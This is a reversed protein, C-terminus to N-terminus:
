RVLFYAAEKEDVDEKNVYRYESDREFGSRELLVQSKKNDVHTIATTAKALMKDFAFDIVANAAEHMFGQGQYESMLEYGIEMTEKEYDYHWLGISGILKDSGKPCMVWTLSQHISTFGEIKRIHEYVDESTPHKPRDLYTNGSEDSRLKWLEPHDAMTMPRLVLRKTILIPFPTFVTNM